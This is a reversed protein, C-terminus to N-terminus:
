RNSVLKARTCMIHVSYVSQLPRGVSKCTNEYQLLAKNTLLYMMHIIEMDHVPHVARGIGGRPTAKKPLQWAGRLTGGCGGDCGGAVRM